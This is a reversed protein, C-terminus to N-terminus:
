PKCRERSVSMQCLILVNDHLSRTTEGIDKLTGRIQNLREETIQRHTELLSVRTVLTSQTDAIGRVDEQIKTAHREADTVTQRLMGWASGLTLVAIFVQAAPGIWKYTDSSVAGSQGAASTTM